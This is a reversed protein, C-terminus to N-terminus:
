QQPCMKKYSTLAITSSQQKHLAYINAEANYPEKHFHRSPLSFNRRYIQFIYKLVDALYWTVTKEKERCFFYEDGKVNKKM